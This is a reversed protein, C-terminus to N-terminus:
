SRGLEEALSLLELEIARLAQLGPAGPHDRAAALLAHV